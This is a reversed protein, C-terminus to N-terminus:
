PKKGKEQGQPPKAQTSTKDDLVKSEDQRLEPVVVSEISFNRQLNLQLWKARNVSDFRGVRLVFWPRGDAGDKTELYPKFGLKEMKEQLSKGSTEDRASLLQVSYGGPLPKADPERAPTTMEGIIKWSNESKALVLLKDSLEHHRDSRYSLVFTVECHSDDLPFLELNDVMTQIFNLSKFNGAMREKWQSLTMERQPLFSPSYFSAYSEIDRQSWAKSWEQILNWVEKLDGPSIPTKTAKSNYNVVPMTPTKKVTVATPPKESDGKVPQKNSTSPPSDGQVLPRQDHGPSPVSDGKDPTELPVDNNEKIIAPQQDGAADITQDPIASADAPTEPEPMKSPADVAPFDEMTLEPNLLYEPVGNLKGVESVGGGNPLVLGKPSLGEIFQDYDSFLPKLPKPRSAAGENWVLTAERLSKALNDLSTTEDVTGALDVGISVFIRGVANQAEAYAQYLQLRSFIAGAAAHIHELRTQTNEGAAAGVQRLIRRDIADIEEAWHLKRMNELYHHNALHIQTLIAMDMALRHLDGLAQRDEALQISQPGKFLEILNVVVKASFAEWQRHLAFSNSDHNKSVNLELGPLLRLMAKRVEGKDIRAQVIKERSEPRNWLGLTEMEEISMGIPPIALAEDNEIALLFETGPPLNVLAAFETRARDLEHQLGDLQQVIDMLARQFRLMELQPKLREDEVKRADDLAQKAATMVPPIREKLQQAGVARWFASRVEQLLNHVAKRRNEEAIRALDREQNVQVASIGFDLINWIMTLDTSRIDRDQAVSFISSRVGDPLSMGSSAAYKDRIAYGANATMQPLLSFRTLNSSGQRIAQDMVTIRYGLNYKLARAMATFLGIPKKEMASDPFLQKRDAAITEQREQSSIPDQIRLCGGVMLLWALVLGVRWPCGVRRASGLRSAMQDSGGLSMSPWNVTFRSQLSRDYFPSIRSWRVGICFSSWYYKMGVIKGWRRVKNDM